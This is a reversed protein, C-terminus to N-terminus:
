YKSKIATKISNLIQRGVAYSGNIGHAVTTFPYVKEGRIIKGDIIYRIDNDLMGKARDFSVTYTDRPLLRNIDECLSKYDTYNSLEHDHTSVVNFMKNMETSGKTNLIKAGFNFTQNISNIKM